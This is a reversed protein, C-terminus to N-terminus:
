EWSEPDPTNASKLYEATTVIAIMWEEGDYTKVTNRNHTGVGLLMGKNLTPYLRSMDYKPCFVKALNETLICILDRCLESGTRSLVADDIDSAFSYYGERHTYPDAGMKGCTKINFTQIRTLLCIVTVTLDEYPPEKVNPENPDKCRVFEIVDKESFTENDKSFLDTVASLVTDKMEKIIHSADQYKAEDWEKILEAIKTKNSKDITTSM